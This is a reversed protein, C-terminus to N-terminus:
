SPREGPLFIVRRGARIVDAMSADWKCGFGEPSFVARVFDLDEAVDVTWRADAMNPTMRATRIGRGEGLFAKPHSHLYATVHERDTKLEALEHLHLLTRLPFAEVDLGDPFTREPFVNSAYVVQNSGRGFLLQVVGDIVQPDILPCDATIRVVVDPTPKWNVAISTFRDLVDHEAGVAHPVNWGACCEAIALDEPTDPTAVVVADVLKALQTRRVVYWLLPRNNVDALVKGPLRASNMRAQIIALVFM